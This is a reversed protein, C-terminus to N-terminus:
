LRHRWGALSTDPSSVQKGFKTMIKSKSTKLSEKATIAQIRRFALANLSWVICDTISKIDCQRRVGYILSLQSSRISYCM